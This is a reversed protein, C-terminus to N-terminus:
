VVKLGKGLANKKIKEIEGMTIAREFSRFGALRFGHKQALASIERIQEITLDRGLSFSEYKGELALIMTEAMCAYAMKPPFGFNFNFNVDGPVEVVGGEVVLVDDRELAVQRSVNRPRSVDCVVAGPMLDEPGIITDVSSTVAIVIHAKKLAAKVDSTIGVSLGTRYLIKEALEELPKKNRAVLTMNRVEGAMMMSCVKGISGTAGLVVVHVNELNHGMLKAAQKAGEVATAVTFSNGTTVAINLNKAITYGADGVVSTFAGLGVIKAGLKEALKGSQIIKALVYKEPLGIMQRATLPCTVFWGEAQSHPTSIGTIDSVKMPPVLRFVNEVVHEPLYRTFAFKRAVDKVELPHIIFAFKEM